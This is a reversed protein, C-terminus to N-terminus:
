LLPKVAICNQEQCYKPPMQLLVQQVAEKTVSVLGLSVVLLTAM